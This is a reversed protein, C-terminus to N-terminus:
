HHILRHSDADRRHLIKGYIGGIADSLRAFVEQFARSHLERGRWVLAEIEERSLEHQAGSVKETSM